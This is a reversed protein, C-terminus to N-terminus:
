EGKNGRLKEVVDLLLQAGTILDAAKTDEEPVHSRGDISPVFIMGTPIGAEAFVDASAITLMNGYTGIVMSITEDRAIESATLAATETDSKNDYYVLEVRSGNATRYLSNALRIGEIEDEAESADNGTLPEFVAIRVTKAPAEEKKIFANYFNDWSTCSSLSALLLACM